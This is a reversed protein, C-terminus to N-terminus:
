ISGDLANARGQIRFIKERSEDLLVNLQKKLDSMKQRTTQVAKFDFKAQASILDQNLQLSQSLLDEGEQHFNEIEKLELVKQSDGDAQAKASQKRCFEDLYDLKLKQVKFIESLIASQQYQVTKGLYDLYDIERQISDAKESNGAKQAAMVEDGLQERLIKQSFYNLQAQTDVLDDTLEALSKQTAKIQGLTPSAEGAGLGNWDQAWAGAALGLYTLGLVPLIKKM